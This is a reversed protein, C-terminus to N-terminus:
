MRKHHSLAHLPINLPTALHKVCKELIRGVNGSHMIVSYICLVLKEIEKIIYTSFIVYYVIKCEFSPRQFEGLMYETIDCAFILLSRLLLIAPVICVKFAIFGSFNNLITSILFLSVFVLKGFNKLMQAAPNAM